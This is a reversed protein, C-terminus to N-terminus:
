NILWMCFDLFKHSVGDGILAVLFGFLFWQIHSGVIVKSQRAALRQRASALFYDYSAKDTTPAISKRKSIADLLRRYHNESMTLTGKFALM